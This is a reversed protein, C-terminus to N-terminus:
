SIAEADITVSLINYRDYKVVSYTTDQAVRNIYGKKAANAGELTSYVGLVDNGEGLVTGELVYVTTM